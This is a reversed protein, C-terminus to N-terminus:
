TRAVVVRGEEEDKEDEDEDNKKKMENGIVIPKERKM